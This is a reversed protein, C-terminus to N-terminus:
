RNKVFYDELSIAAHYKAHTPHQSSGISKVLYGLSINKDKPTAIGRAYFFGCFFCATPSIGKANNPSSLNKFAHFLEDLKAEADASVRGKAVLHKCLLYLVKFAKGNGFDATSIFHDKNQLVSDFLTSLYISNIDSATVESPMKEYIQDILDNFNIISYTKQPFTNQFQSTIREGHMDFEASRVVNATMERWYEVEIRNSQGILESPLPLRNDFITHLWFAAQYAAYTSVRYGHEFTKKLCEIISDENRSFLIGEHHILARQFAATPSKGRCPQMLHHYLGQYSSFNVVHDCRDAHRVLQGFYQTCQHLIDFAYMSGQDAALIFKDIDHLVEILLEHKTANCQGSDTFWSNFIRFIKQNFDVEGRGKILM